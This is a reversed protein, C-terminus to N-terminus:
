NGSSGWNIEIVVETGAGPHSSWHITAGIKDAYYQVIKTGMGKARKADFDPPLGVGNDHISFRVHHEDKSSRVTIIEARSHKLANFVCERIIRYLGESTDNKKFQIENSLNSNIAAPYVLRYSDFLEDLATKLGASQLTYPNLGKSILRTQELAENLHFNLELMLKNADPPLTSAKSQLRNGMFVLAAMMQGLGDHLERGLKQQEYTSIEAFREQLNKQETYDFLMLEVSEIKPVATVIAYFEKKSQLTRGKLSMTFARQDMQTQEILSIWDESESWDDFHPPTKDAEIMRLLNDNMYEIQLDPGVQILGICAKDCFELFQSREKQHKQEAKIQNSIDIGVAHIEYEKKRKMKTARLQWSIWCDKENNILKMTYPFSNDPQNLAKNIAEILADRQSQMADCLWDIVPITKFDPYISSFINECSENCYQIYGQKNWNLVLTAEDKDLLNRYRFESHLLKLYNKRLLILAIITTFSSLLVPIYFGPTTWFYPAVSFSAVAPQPSTNRSKDQSLVEFRYDGPPLRQTNIIKQTNYPSWESVPRNHQSDIVRWSYVLEDDPTEKWADRGSFSFTARENPFITDTFTNIQVQPPSKENIFYFYNQGLNVWLSNPAGQHIQYVPTDPLGDSDDYRIWRGDKFSLVGGSRLGAWLVGDNAYHLSIIDEAPLGEEYTIQTWKEQDYILLGNGNTAVWIKGDQELMDTIRAPNIEFQKPLQLVKGQGNEWVEIWNEGGFWYSGTSTKLMSTVSQDTRDLVQPHKIWHEGDWRFAGLGYLIWVEGSSPNYLKHNTISYHSYSPIHPLKKIQVHDTFQIEYVGNLEDDFSSKDENYIYEVLVYTKYNKLNNPIIQSLQHTGLLNGIISYSNNSLPPSKSDFLYLDFLNSIVLSQYNNIKSLYVIGYQPWSYDPHKSYDEIWDQHPLNYFVSSYWVNQSLRYAGSQTGLWITGDSLKTICQIYKNLEKKYLSISDDFGIYSYTNIGSGTGALFFEDILSFCTIQRETDKPLIVSLIDNDITYINNDVAAYVGGSPRIMIDYIGLGEAPTKHDSFDTWIRYAGKPTLKAVGYKNIAFWKAGNSDFEIDEIGDGEIAENGPFPLPYVKGADYPFTDTEQKLPIFLLQCDYTGCWVTGNEAIRVSLCNVNKSGPFDDQTYSHITGDPQIYNMGETTCVWVGGFRDMALKRTKNTLLGSHINYITSRLGDYHVVGGGWTAMWVTGDRGEIIDRVREHPLDDPSHFESINYNTVFHIQNIDDYPDDAPYAAQYNLKYFSLFFCTWLLIQKRYNIKSLRGSSLISKRLIMNEM